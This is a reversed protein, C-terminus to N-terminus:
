WFGSGTTRYRSSQARFADSSQASVGSTGSPRALRERDLRLDYERRKVPDLLTSHAEGIIKFRREAQLREEEPLSICKDPHWRLSLERYKLKIERDSASRTLGLVYYYDKERETERAANQECLRLERVLEHDCPDYKIALKFDRVAAFFENLLQLCRARRAYAKSFESDLQIAKTCDEVGERYKGLEKYAAARNCYLIRLIQANNEAANIANTYHEVAAAFKKQQFLQNGKHKGEDVLNIIKMLSASNDDLQQIDALYSRANEFHDFGSFYLCSAIMYLVKPTRRHPAVVELIDVAKLYRSQKQLSEAYRLRFPITESFQAVLMLWAEDGESTGFSAEAHQFIELGNKYKKRENLINPTVESVPISDMISVARSLDGMFAAAKAARLLIKVNKPEMEVVKMCDAICENYRQAMFYASSRNGHLANLRSLHDHPQQEIARSYLELALTYEGQEYKTDAETKLTKSNETKLSQIKKLAATHTRYIELAETSEGADIEARLYYESEELERLEQQLCSPIASRATNPATARPSTQKAAETTLLGGSRKVRVMRRKAISDDSAEHIKNPDVTDSTAAATTARRGEYLEEYARMVGLPLKLMDKGPVCRSLACQKCVLLVSPMLQVPDVVVNQCLECVFFTSLFKKFWAVNPPVVETIDGVKPAVAAMGAVSGNLPAPRPPTSLFSTSQASSSPLPVHPVDDMLVAEVASM